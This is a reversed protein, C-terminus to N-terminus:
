IHILSLGRLTTGDYTMGMYYWQNLTLTTNSQVSTMANNWLGFWPKGGILQMQTDQWGDADLQGREDVISGDNATPYVWVFFSYKTDVIRSSLNGSYVYQTSTGVVNLYSPPGAAYSPANYITGNLSGTVGTNLQSAIDTIATGSGNYSTSDGISYNAILGSSTMASVNGSSGLITGGSAATAWGNFTYGSRVPATPLTVTGNSVYTGTTSTSGTYNKDFTITYTSGLWQAYLTTDAAFTVLQSNTYSTGGGAAITNWTGFAFGNKKYANATLNAGSPSSIVLNATTGTGGNANLTVTVSSITFSQVVRTAALYNTSTAVDANLTCTGVSVLTV